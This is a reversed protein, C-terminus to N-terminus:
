LPLHEIMIFTTFNPPYRLTGAGSDANSLGPQAAPVEHLLTNGQDKFPLCVYSYCHKEM